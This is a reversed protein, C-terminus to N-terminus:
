RIRGGGRKTANSKTITGLILTSSVPLKGVLVVITVVIWPRAKYQAFAAGSIVLKADASTKSQGLFVEVTRLRLRAQGDRDWGGGISRSKAASVIGWPRSAQRLGDVVALLGRGQM